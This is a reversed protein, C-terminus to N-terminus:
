NEKLFSNNGVAPVHHESESLPAGAFAAAQQGVHIDLRPRSFENPLVSMYLAMDQSSMVVTQACYFPCREQGALYLSFPPM